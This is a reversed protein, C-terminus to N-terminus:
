MKQKQAQLQESLHQDPFFEKLWLKAAIPDSHKFIKFTKQQKKATEIQDVM